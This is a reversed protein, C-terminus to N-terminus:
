SSAPIAAPTPCRAKGAGAFHAIGGIFLVYVISYLLKM